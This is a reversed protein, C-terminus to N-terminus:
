VVKCQNCLMLKKREYIGHCHHCVKEETRLREYRKKLCTCGNRNHFFKVVEQEGGQVLDRLKLQFGPAIEYLLVTQAVICAILVNVKDAALLHNSGLSVLCAVLKQRADRDQYEPYLDRPILKM